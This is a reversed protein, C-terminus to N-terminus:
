MLNRSSIGDNGEGIPRGAAAAKAHRAAVLAIGEASLPAAPTIGVPRAQTQISKMYYEGADNSSLIYRNNDSGIYIDQGNENTKRYSRFTGDKQPIKIVETSDKKTASKPAPKVEQKPAPAKVSATQKPQSVKKLTPNASPLGALEPKKLFKGALTKLIAAEEPTFQQAAPTQAAVPASKIGLLVSLRERSFAKLEKIVEQAPDSTDGDFISEKILIEYYKAKAFRREAETMLDETNFNDVDLQAPETTVQAEVPEGGLEEEWNM